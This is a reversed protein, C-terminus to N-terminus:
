SEPGHSSNPRPVSQLADMIRPEDLGEGALIDATDGVSLLGLLLHETSVYEDNMRGAADSAVTLVRRFAKSEHLEASGKVTPRKTLRERAASLLPDSTRGATRLVSSVVGDSQALVACLLHEPYLEASHLHKALSHAEAVAERARHTLRDINM